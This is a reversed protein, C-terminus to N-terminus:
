SELELPLLKSTINSNSRCLYIYIIHDGGLVKYQGEELMPIHGSPNIKQFAKTGQLDLYNIQNVMLPVNSLKCIAMVSRSSNDIVNGHLTLPKPAENPRANSNGGCGM